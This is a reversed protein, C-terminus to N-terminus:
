LAVISGSSKGALQINRGTSCALGALFGARHSPAGRLEERFERTEISLM